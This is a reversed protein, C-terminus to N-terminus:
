KIEQKLNRILLGILDEKSYLSHEIIIEGTEKDLRVTVDSPTSNSIRTRTACAITDIIDTCKDKLLNIDLILQSDIRNKATM